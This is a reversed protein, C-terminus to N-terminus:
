SDLPILRPCCPPLLIQPPTASLHCSWPFCCCPILLLFVCSSHKLSDTDKSSELPCKLGVWGATKCLLASNEAPRWWQLLHTVQAKCSETAEESSVKGWTSSGGELTM